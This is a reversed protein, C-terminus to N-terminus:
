GSRRWAPGLTRRLIVGQCCGVLPSTTFTLLFSLSPYYCPAPYLGAMGQPSNEGPCLGCFWLGRRQSKASVSQFNPIENRKILIKFHPLLTVGIFLGACCPPFFAIFAFAIFTAPGAVGCQYLKSSIFTIIVQGVQGAGGGACFFAM